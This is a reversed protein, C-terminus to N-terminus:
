SFTDWPTPTRHALDRIISNLYSNDNGGPVETKGNYTPRTTSTTTHHTYPSFFPLTLFLPTHSFLFVFRFLIPGQAEVRPVAQAQAHADQTTVIM